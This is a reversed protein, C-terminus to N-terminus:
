CNKVKGQRFKKADPGIFLNLFEFVIIMFAPLLYATLGLLWVIAFLLMSAVLGMVPGAIAILREADKPINRIQTMGLIGVIIPVFLVYGTEAGMINAMMYHGFEHLMVVFMIFFILLSSWIAYMFAATGLASGVTVFKRKHKSFIRGM